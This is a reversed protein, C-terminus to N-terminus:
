GDAFLGLTLCTQSVNRCGTPEIVALIRWFLSLSLSLFLSIFSIKDMLPEDGAGSNERLKRAPKHMRVGEKLTDKSVQTRATSAAPRKRWPVAM